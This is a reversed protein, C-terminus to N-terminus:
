PKPAAPEEVPAAPTEVAPAGAPTEVTPVELSPVVSTAPPTLSPPAGAGAPPPTAPAPPPEVEVPPKAKLVLIRQSATQSFTSDPYDSQVKKYSEEAKTLDGATKAIDGLSVLAFPAIFSADPSAVLEEFVKQADGTKGQALLKSGLNAKASALAPHNPYTSVFKQLTAVAKDKENADWQSNALLVLASGAAATDANGDVVAQYAAVSDAKVLAAGATEQGSQVIGRYVVVGVAGLALAAALAVLGKQNRDLFAEFANPGQSIEALPVATEKLDASM